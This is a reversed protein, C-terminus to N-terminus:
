CIAQNYWGVENSALISHALDLWPRYSIGQGMGSLWPHQMMGSPGWYVWSRSCGGNPSWKGNLTEGQPRHTKTSLHLCFFGLHRGTKHHNIWRRHCPTSGDIWRDRFVSSLFCMPTMPNGHVWHNIIMIGILHSYNPIYGIKLCVWIYGDKGEVSPCFTKGLRQWFDAGLHVSFLRVPFLNFFLHFVEFLLEKTSIMPGIMPGYQWSSRM